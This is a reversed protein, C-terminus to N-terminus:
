NLTVLTFFKYPKCYHGSGKDHATDLLLLKSFLDLKFEDGSDQPELKIFVLVFISIFEEQISELTCNLQESVVGNGGDFAKSIHVEIGQVKTKFCVNM